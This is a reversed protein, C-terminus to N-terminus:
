SRPRGVIALPSASGSGGGTFRVVLATMNDLGLQQHLRRRAEASGSPTRPDARAPQPHGRRPRAPAAAPRDNRGAPQRLHRREAPRSLHWARTSRQGDRPCRGQRAVVTRHARSEDISQLTTDGSGVASSDEYGLKKIRREGATRRGPPLVLLVSDGISAACATGDAAVFLAVLTTSLSGENSDVLARDAARLGEKLRELVDVEDSSLFQEVFAAQALQSARWGAQGRSEGGYAKAAEPRFTSGTAGDALLCLMFDRWPAPARDGLDRSTLVLCRDDNLEHADGTDTAMAVRAWPVPRGFRTEVSIAQAADTASFATSM